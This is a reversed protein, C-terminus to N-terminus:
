SLHFAKTFFFWAVCSLGGIGTTLMAALTSWGLAEIRGVRERLAGYREACVAEHSALRKDIDHIDPLVM